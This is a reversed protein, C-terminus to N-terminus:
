GLAMVSPLEDGDTRVIKQVHRDASRAIDALVVVLPKRGDQPQAGGAALQLHKCVSNAVGDSEVPMGGGAREPEGVVPAIEQSVVDWRVLEVVCRHRAHVESERVTVTSIDELGLESGAAIAALESRRYLFEAGMHGREAHAE